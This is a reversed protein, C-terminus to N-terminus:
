SVSVSLHNLIQSHYTPPTCMCLHAYRDRESRNKSGNSLLSFSALVLPTLKTWPAVHTAPYLTDRMSDKDEEAVSYRARLWLDTTTHPRRGKKM